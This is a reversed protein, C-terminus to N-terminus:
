DKPALAQEQVFMFAAQYVEPIFRLFKDEMELVKQPHHSDVVRQELLSVTISSLPNLVHDKDHIAFRYLESEGQKVYLAKLIYDPLEIRYSGSSVDATNGMLDLLRDKM